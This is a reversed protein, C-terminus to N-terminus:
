ESGGKKASARAQIEAVKIATDAKLNAIELDQDDKRERADINEAMQEEQGELRRTERANDEEINAIKMAELEERLQQERQAGEAKVTAMQAQAEELKRKADSNAFGDQMEADEKAKMEQKAAQLAQAKKASAEEMEEATPYFRAVSDYKSAKMLEERAALKYKYPITVPNVQSAELAEHDKIITLATKLEQEATRHGLGVKASLDDKDLWELM